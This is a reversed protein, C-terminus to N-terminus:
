TPALDNKVLGVAHMGAATDTVAVDYLPPPPAFLPVYVGISQPLSGNEVVSPIETSGGILSKVEVTVVSTLGPVWSMGRTSECTLDVVTVSGGLRSSLGASAARSSAQVSACNASASVDTAALQGAEEATPSM